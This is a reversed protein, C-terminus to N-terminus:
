RGSRENGARRRRQAAGNARRKQAKLAALRRWAQGLAADAKAKDKTLADVRIQLDVIQQAQGTGEGRKAERLEQTLSAVQALAARKDSEARFGAATKVSLFAILAIAAGGLALSFPRPTLSALWRRMRERLSLPPAAFAPADPAPLAAEIPVAALTEQIADYERRCFGCTFLHKTLRESDPFAAGQEIWDLWAEPEPCNQTWAPSQERMAEALKQEIPTLLTAGSKEADRNRKEERM